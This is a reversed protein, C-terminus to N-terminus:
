RGAPVFPRDAIGAVGPEVAFLAGSSPAAALAAKDM